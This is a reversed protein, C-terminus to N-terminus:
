SGLLASYVERTKSAAADWRIKQLEAKAMSIMDERLEDYLLANIILDALRDTDWFDFKLTHGMVESVGSQRSILAPTDFNIAELAAIGFPESVSPMVYLDAVSFMEEVEREKLFGPFRFHKDLGLENVRRQVQPLMDGSGAMVFTAEPVHPIVRSAAEVFYEPGKQFTIRGLFLVVKSGWSGKGRYHHVAESPYIGNHVVHVRELPIGHERHIVNKTYHSVAIVAQAAELGFREIEHIQQNVSHGSRDYELSHVHAILPKGTTSALAVGAPYTMWDHVHIADFNLTPGIAAVQASFRLVEEFINSGYRVGPAPAPGFAAEVGSSIAIAQRLYVDYEAESWYPMLFAPIGITDIGPVPKLAQSSAALVPESSNSATRKKDTVVKHIVYPDLLEMHPSDEGGLLQPVVFTINVGLRAIGKSLGECAVGLGGSIHPPYEWGLMLIHTM